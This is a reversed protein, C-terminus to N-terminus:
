GHPERVFRYPTESRSYTPLDRGTALWSERSLRTVLSLADTGRVPSFDREQEGLRGKQLTM